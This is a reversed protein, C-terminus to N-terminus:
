GEGVVRFELRRKRRRMRQGGCRREGTYKATDAPGAGDNEKMALGTSQTSCPLFSLSVSHSV